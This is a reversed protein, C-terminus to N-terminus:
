DSFRWGILRFSSSGRHEAACVWMDRETLFMSGETTSLIEDHQVCTVKTDATITRDYTNLSREISTEHLNLIVFRDPLNCVVRRGDFFMGDCRRTGLDLTWCAGEDELCWTKNILKQYDPFGVLWGDSYAIVIMGDKVYFGRTDWSWSQYRKQSSVGRQLTHVSSSKPIIPPPAFRRPGAILHKPIDLVFTHPTFSRVWRGPAVKLWPVDSISYVEHLSKRSLIRFGMNTSHFIYEADFDICVTYPITGYHSHDSIDATVTPQIKYVGDEAEPNQGSAATPESEGEACSFVSLDFIYLTNHTSVMMLCGHKLKMSRSYGDLTIEGLLEM